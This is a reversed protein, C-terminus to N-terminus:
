KKEEFLAQKIEEISVLKTTALTPTKSGKPFVLTCPTILKPCYAEFIERKEDVGLPWSINTDERFYEIYDRDRKKEFSLNIIFSLITIEDLNLINSEAAEQIEIHEELCSLCYKSSFLLLIPHDFNLNELKKPESNFDDIFKNKSLNIPFGDQALTRQVLDTSSQQNPNKGEKLSTDLNRGCSFILFIFFFRNM